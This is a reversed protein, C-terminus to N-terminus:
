DSGLRGLLKTARTAVAHRGDGTRRRLIPRLERRLAPDDRAFAALTTMTENVVIWDDSAALNARLIAVARERQAPTLAVNDLIQALHWRVSPQDIAAVDTLLREVHPAGLDPRARVVKELADAARMRVIEDDSALSDLLEALRAPSRLALAVVEAARGLSRPNGGRLM